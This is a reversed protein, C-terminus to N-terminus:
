STESRLKAGIWYKEVFCAIFDYQIAVITCSKVNIRTNVLSRRKSMIQKVDEFIEGIYNSRLESNLRFDCSNVKIIHGVNWIFFTFCSASREISHCDNTVQNLLRTTFKLAGLVINLAVYGKGAVHRIGVELLHFASHWIPRM